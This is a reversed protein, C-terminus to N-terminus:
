LVVGFGVFRFPITYCSTSIAFFSYLGIRMSEIFAPSFTSCYLNIPNLPLCQAAPALAYPIQSTDVSFSWNAGIPTKPIKRTSAPAATETPAFTVDSAFPLATVTAFESSTFPIARSEAEADPSM